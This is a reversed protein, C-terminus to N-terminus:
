GESIEANEIISAIEYLSLKQIDQLFSTLPGRLCHQMGNHDIYQVTVVKKHDITIADRYKM